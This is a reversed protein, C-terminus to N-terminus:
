DWNQINTLAKTVRKGVKQVLHDFFQQIEKHTGFKLKEAFEKSLESKISSGKTSLKLDEILEMLEDSVRSVNLEIDKIAEDLRRFGNLNRPLM